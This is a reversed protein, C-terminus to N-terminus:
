WVRLGANNARALDLAEDAHRSLGCVWVTLSGAAALRAFSKQCIMQSSADSFAM